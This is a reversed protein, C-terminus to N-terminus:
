GLLDNRVHGNMEPASDIFGLDVLQDVVEQLRTVDVHGDDPVYYDKGQKFFFAELVKEPLDFHDSMAPIAESRNNKLYEILQVYDAGWAEWADPKANLSANSTALFVFPYSSGWADRADFVTLVGGESRISSAFAPPVTGADVKGERIASGMAPFPVEVYEIQNAPDIGVSRFQKNAIAHVGTGLGNLGVKKGELDETAEIGSDELALWPIRFWDEHADYGVIGTISLGESSIENNVANPFSSYAANGCDLEGSAIKNLSDPTSQVNSTQVTYADGLNDLQDQIEPVALPSPMAAPSIWGFSLTPIEGGGGLRGLCGSLGSIGILGVTGGAKIFQRRSTTSMHLTIDCPNGLATDILSM